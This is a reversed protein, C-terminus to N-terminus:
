NLDVMLEGDKLSLPWSKVGNGALPSLGRGTKINFRAKHWPCLIEDGHIEGECLAAAKHPCHNDLLYFEDSHYILVFQKDDLNICQIKNQCLDTVAGLSIM